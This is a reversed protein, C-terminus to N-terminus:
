MGGCWKVIYGYYKVRYKPLLLINSVFYHVRFIILEDTDGVPSKPLMVLTWALTGHMRQRYSVYFYCKRSLHIITADM